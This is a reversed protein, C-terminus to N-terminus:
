AALRTSFRVLQASYKVLLDTAYSDIEQVREIAVNANDRLNNFKLLLPPLAM